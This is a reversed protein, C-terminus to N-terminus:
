AKGPPLDGGINPLDGGILPLDGGITMTNMKNM